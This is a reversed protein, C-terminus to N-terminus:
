YLTNYLNIANCLGVIQSACVHIFIIVRMHSCVTLGDRNAGSVTETVIGSVGGRIGHWLGRSAAAFRSGSEAHTKIQQRKHQHSEDLVTSGVADSLTGSLKAASNFTGHAMKVIGGTLNLQLLDVLGETVDKFLGIPNGLFDISGLIWAAQRTFEATYYVRLSDALLDATEFM